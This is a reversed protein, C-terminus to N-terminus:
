APVIGRVARVPMPFTRPGDPLGAIYGARVHREISGRVNDALNQVLASLRGQGSTFTSWYDDFSPYECDVVITLESVDTFELRRWLAAQGGATCLPHAKTTDRLASISDETAAGTDWVLAFPAFGWYHHVAAAVLGGPRVVRRM